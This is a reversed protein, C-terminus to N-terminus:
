KEQEKNLLSLVFTYKKKLLDLRLNFPLKVRKLIIKSIFKM